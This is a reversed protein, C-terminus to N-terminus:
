SFHPLHFGKGECGHRSGAAETRATTHKTLDRPRAGWSHERQTSRGSDEGKLHKKRLEKGSHEEWAAPGTHTLLDCPGQQTRSRQIFKGHLEGSQPALLM